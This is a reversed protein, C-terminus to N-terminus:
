GCFRHLDVLLDGALLDIHNRLAPVSLANINGGREKRIPVLSPGLIFLHQASIIPVALIQRLFELNIKQSFFEAARMVHFERTWGLLSREVRGKARSRLSSFSARHM